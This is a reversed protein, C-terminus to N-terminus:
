SGEAVRRPEKTLVFVMREQDSVPMDDRASIKLRVIRQVVTSRQRASKVHVCMDRRSSRRHLFRRRRGHKLDREYRGVSCRAPKLM